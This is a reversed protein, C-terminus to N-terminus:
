KPIRMCSCDPVRKPVGHPFSSFDRLLMDPLSAFRISHSMTSTAARPAESRRLSSRSRLAWRTACRQRCSSRAQAAPLCCCKSQPKGACKVTGAAVDLFSPQSRPTSILLAAHRHADPGSRTFARAPVSIGLGCGARRRGSGYSRRVKTRRSTPAARSTSASSRRAGCWWTASGLSGRCVAMRMARGTIM